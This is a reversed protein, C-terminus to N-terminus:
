LAAPRFIVGERKFKEVEDNTRQLKGSYVYTMRKDQVSKSEVGLRALGALLHDADEKGLVTSHPHPRSTGDLATYFVKVSGPIFIETFVTNNAHDREQAFHGLETEIFAIHDLNIMLGSPLAIINM